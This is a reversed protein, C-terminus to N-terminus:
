SPPMAARLALLACLHGPYYLYFFCRLRPMQLDVRSAAFALPVVALAWPNGNVVGLM